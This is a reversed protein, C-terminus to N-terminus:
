LSARYGKVRKAPPKISFYSVAVGIPQFGSETLRHLLFIRHPFFSLSILPLFVKQPLFCVSLYFLSLQKWRPARDKSKSIDVYLDDAASGGADEHKRMATEVVQLERNNLKHPTTAGVGGCVKDVTFHRNSTFCQLTNPMAVEAIELHKGLFAWMWCRNRRQPLHFHRSDLVKFGAAYGNRKFAEMVSHVQPPLKKKTKKDTFHKVLGTVNECIVVAPKFRKIYANVGSFTEGTSGIGQDICKAFTNRKNNETSM